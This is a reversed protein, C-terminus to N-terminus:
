WGRLRCSSLLFGVRAAAALVGLSPLRTDEYSVWLPLQRVKGDTDVFINIHGIGAAVAKFPEAAGGLIQQAIVEQGASKVKLAELKFAYPLYVNSSQRMAESLSEDHQSLKSFMIDFVIMRCGSEALAKILAAHFSRPLPWNGLSKLTDDGIEIIAIEPSVTQAPRTKMLLDYAAMEQPRLLDPVIVALILFCISGTYWVVFPRKM